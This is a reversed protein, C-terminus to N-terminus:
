FLENEDMDDDVLKVSPQQQPAEPEQIPEIDEPENKKLDPSNTAVVDAILESTIAATAKYTRMTVEKM